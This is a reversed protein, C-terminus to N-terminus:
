KPVMPLTIVAVGVISVIGIVGGIVWRHVMRTTPAEIELVRLRKDQDEQGTFVRSLSDRTEAHHLELRALTQLSSDISKVAQKIEGVAGELSAIRYEILEANESM